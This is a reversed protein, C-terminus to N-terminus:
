HSTLTSIISLSWVQASLSLLLLVVLGLGGGLDALLSQIFLLLHGCPLILFHGRAAWLQLGLVIDRLGGWVKIALQFLRVSWWFSIIM